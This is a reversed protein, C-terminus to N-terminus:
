PLEMLHGWSQTWNSRATDRSYCSCIRLDAPCRSNRGKMASQVKAASETPAGCPLPQWEGSAAARLWSNSLNGLLDPRVVSRWLGDASRQLAPLDASAHLGSQTLRCPVVRDVFDERVIVVDISHFLYRGVLDKWLGLYELRGDIVKHNSSAAWTALFCFHELDRTLNLFVRDILASTAAFYFDVAYAPTPGVHTTPGARLGRCRGTDNAMMGCSNAMYFLRPNLATFSFRAIWAVDLRTLLVWTFAVGDKAEARRKLDLVQQISAFMGPSASPPWGLRPVAASINYGRRMGFASARPRLIRRILPAASETWSHVFTTFECEPNADRIRTAITPWALHASLFDDQHCETATANYQRCPNSSLKRYRALLGFFCLAVRCQASQTPAPAVAAPPTFNKCAARREGPSLVSEGAADLLLQSM